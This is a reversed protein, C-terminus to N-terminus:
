SIQEMVIKVVSPIADNVPQSLDESFEYVKHTEISIITIIEPLSANMARGVWIANQLTTDHASSLHGFAHEPLDELPFCEVTGVAVKGTQISDILIVRDYGIMHEMLSLGGLSLCEVEVRPLKLDNPQHNLPQIPIKRQDIQAEVQRAAHWGVGDDGLIPNGLGIVLINM